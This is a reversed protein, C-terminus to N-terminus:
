EMEATEPSVSAAEGHHKYEKLNTRTKYWTLWGESLKLRDEKPIGARDAFGTWKQHLVDGTILISNSMVELVWADMM